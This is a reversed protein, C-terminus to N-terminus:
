RTLSRRGLLALGVSAWFLQRAMRVLSLTVGAAAGLGLLATFGSTTYQDVGVRFPVARFAVNIFRNVTDLLFANLLTPSGLMLTTPLLSLTLWAEAISAVHFAAECAVVGCLRWTSTSLAAYAHTEIHQLRNLATDMRGGPTRVLWPRVSACLAPRTRALWVAGSLVSAMVALSLWLAARISEPLVFTALMTIAGGLIVSAVSVSYFLNEATLAAFAESAPVHRTVYMAKAPESVLLSLFSLNGLADGSITAATASRLPVRGGLLIVWALSRAAFRFLSLALIALFGRWGVALFGEGIHDLGVKQVQWYLLALGAAALVM